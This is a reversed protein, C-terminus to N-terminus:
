AFRPRRIQLDNAIGMTTGIIQIIAPATITIM